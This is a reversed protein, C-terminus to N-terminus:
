LIIGLVLVIGLIGELGHIIVAMWNSQFLKSPFAFVFGFYLATSVIVQPKHLHYLGFLIGNFFWDWKGFVGQMKPLLIGRYIMEEGLLYNFMCTLLYLGLLWWAGKYNPTNLTSLDYTILDKYLPRLTSDVDPLTFLGTQLFISILIFPVTWWLLWYGSKGTIPHVPKKYNLRTKILQLCLTHGENKLILLSLVFQWILGVNIAIWYIMLPDWNTLVALKPTIVFALIGMPLASAAWILLIKQLSYQDKM